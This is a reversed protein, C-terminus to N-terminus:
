GVIVIADGTGALLKAEGCIEGKRFRPSPTNKMASLDPLVPLMDQIDPLKSTSDNVVTRYQLVQGTFNYIQMNDCNDPAIIPTWTVNNLTVPSARM